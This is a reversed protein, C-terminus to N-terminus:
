RATAASQRWWEIADSLGSALTHSPTFGLEERLRRIDPLLVPPDEPRAAIAGLALLDPRGILAGIMEVVRRLPVAEGSGINVPGELGSALLAAIAEGADAAHLLDRLQTGSTVRAVDGALLSRVVSPVLREPREHPGYVLFIRAWAFSLSRAACYRQALDYVARKCAGYTTAPQLPTVTECCFGHRWDYEACSGVGVFRTGGADAFARLLSLSAGVWSFNVEASWFAGHTTDWACHVLHSAAIREFLARVPEALLDVTHWQAAAITPDPRSSTLAHVEMGRRDLAAVIQRGLFGRAGTVIVRTV